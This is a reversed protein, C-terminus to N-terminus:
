QMGAEAASLGEPTGEGGREMEYQPHHFRCLPTQAEERECQFAPGGCIACEHSQEM